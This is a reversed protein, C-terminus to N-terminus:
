HGAERGFLLSVYCCNVHIHWWHFLYIGNERDGVAWLYDIQSGVYLKETDEM